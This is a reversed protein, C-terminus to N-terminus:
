GHYAAVMEDWKSRADALRYELREWNVGHLHLKKAVSNLKRWLQPERVDPIAPAYISLFSSLVSEVMTMLSGSQYCNTLSSELNRYGSEGIDIKVGARTQKIAFGLVEAGISTRKLDVAQLGGRFGMGLEDLTSRLRERVDRCDQADRGLIYLNDVYRAYQVNPHGENAVLDLRQNLFAEVLTPSYPNGQETGRHEQVTRNGRVVSTILGITAEDQIYSRQTQLAEEIPITDFCSRIDDAVLFHRGARVASQIGCLVQWVTRGSLQLRQQWFLKLSLDLAKSVVRDIFNSIHLYRIGGSRKPVPVLRSLGPRYNGERIADRAYRFAKYADRDNIENLYVRDIGPSHGGNAKLLRFAVMLNSEDSFKHIDIAGNADATVPTLGRRNEGHFRFFYEREMGYGDRTLGHIYQNPEWRKSM